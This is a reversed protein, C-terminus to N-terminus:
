GRVIELNDHIRKFEEFMAHQDISPEYDKNYHVVVKNFKEYDVDLNVIDELIHNCDNIYIHKEPLQPEPAKYDNFLSNKIIHRDLLENEIEEAIKDNNKKRTNIIFLISNHIIQSIYAFANVQQGSRESIMTHDFNGLYKLIKYTADSYFDDKYSYGSFQPKTLIKKIMLLVIEGFREYSVKNIATQESLTIIKQKLNNLIRQKQSTLSQEKYKKDYLHVYVNIYRNIRSNFRKDTIGARNNKIRILLSKLEIESTYNHIKKKM